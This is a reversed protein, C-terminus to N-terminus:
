IGRTERKSVINFSIGVISGALSDRVLACCRRAARHHHDGTRGCQGTNREAIRRDASEHLHCGRGDRSRASERAFQAVAGVGPFCCDAGRVRAYDLVLAAPEVAQMPLVFKM